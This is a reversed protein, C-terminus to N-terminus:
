SLWKDESCEVTEQKCAIFSLKEKGTARMSPEDSIAGSEHAIALALMTAKVELEGKKLGLKAELQTEMNRPGSAM